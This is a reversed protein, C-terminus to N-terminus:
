QRRFITLVERMVDSTDLKAAGELPNDLNPGAPQASPAMPVVEGDTGVIVQNGNRIYFDGDPLAPLGVLALAQNVTFAGTLVLRVVERLKRSKDEQLARVATFDYTVVADEDASVALEPLLQTQWAGAILVSVPLMAEAWFAHEADEYTMGPNQLAVRAGAILPPIEFVGCIRTEIHWRTGDMEMEAQNVGMQQYEATDQNLVLLDFWKRLGNYAARFKSKIRATEDENISGKVKLLGMPVGANRFFALEFDSMQLDIAGERWLVELKSLGYFDNTMSPEQIHVMDRAPIEAKKEGNVAVIYADADATLGPKITVYDPRILRLEQVPMLRYKNRREASSSVRVKHIYADGAADLHTLLRDQFAVYGGRAGPDGLLKILPHRDVVQGNRRILQPKLPAFSSARQRMCIYILSNGEYGDKALKTLDRPRAQEQGVSWTPIYEAQNKGRGLRGRNSKWQEVLGGDDYM